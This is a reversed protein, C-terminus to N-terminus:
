KRSPAQVFLKTSDEALFNSSSIIPGLNVVASIDKPTPTEVVLNSLTLSWIHRKSVASGAYSPPPKLCTKNEGGGPSSSGM